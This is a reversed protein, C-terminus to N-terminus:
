IPVWGMFTLNCKKHQHRAHLGAYCPRFNDPASLPSARASPEAAQAIADSTAVFLIGLVAVIGIHMYSLVKGM